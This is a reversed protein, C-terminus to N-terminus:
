WSCHFVTLNRKSFVKLHRKITLETCRRREYVWVRLSLGNDVGVVLYFLLGTLGQALLPWIRHGIFLLGPVYTMGSILGATSDTLCLTWPQRTYNPLPNHTAYRNIKTQDRRYEVIVTKARSLVAPETWHLCKITLDYNRDEPYLFPLM